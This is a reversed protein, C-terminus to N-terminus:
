LQRVSHAICGNADWHSSRYLTCMSPHSPATPSQVASPVLSLSDRTCRLAPPLPRTLTPRSRLRRPTSRARAPPPPPLLPLWKAPISSLLSSPLRSHLPTTNFIFLRLYSAAITSSFNQAQRQMREKGVLTGSTRGPLLRGNV